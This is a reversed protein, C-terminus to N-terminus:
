YSSPNALVFTVAYTSSIYFTAPQPTICLVVSAASDTHKHVSTVGPWCSAQDDSEEKYKHEGPSDISKERWQWLATTRSFHHKVEAQPVTSFCLAQAIDWYWAGPVTWGVAAKSSLPLVQCCQCSDEEKQVGEFGKNKHALLEELTGAGGGM